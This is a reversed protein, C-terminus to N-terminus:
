KRDNDFDDTLVIAACAYRGGSSQKQLPDSGPIYEPGLHLVISRGVINRLGTLRIIYDSSNVSTCNSDADCTVQGIQGVERTRKNDLYTGGDVSFPNFHGGTNGPACAARVDGYQHVHWGFSQGDASGEISVNGSIEVAGDCSNQTFYIQGTVAGVEADSYGNSFDAMAVITSKDCLRIRNDNEDRLPHTFAAASAALLGFLKM